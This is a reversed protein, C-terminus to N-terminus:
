ESPLVIEAYTGRDSVDVKLTGGSSEIILKAVSLPSGPCMPKCCQNETLGTRVQVVVTKGEGRLATVECTAKEPFSYGHWPVLVYKIAETCFYQSGSVMVRPLGIPIDVKSVTVDMGHNKLSRLAERFARHLSCQEVDYRRRGFVLSSYLSMLSSIWMQSRAMRSMRSVYKRGEDTLDDGKEQVLLECYGCIYGSLLNVDHLYTCIASQLEGMPPDATAGSELPNM